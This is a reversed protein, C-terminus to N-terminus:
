AATGWAERQSLKADLFFKIVYLLSVAEKSDEMKKIQRGLDGINSELKKNALQADRTREQERRMAFAHDNNEKIIAEREQLNQAL